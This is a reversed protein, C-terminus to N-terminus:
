IGGEISLDLSETEENYESDMFISNLISNIEDEDETTPSQPSAGGEPFLKFIKAGDDDYGVITQPSTDPNLVIEYWYDKAKSIVEGIKTDAETLFIEVKDTETTVIFDKELVVNEYAKKEVVCMRVVDGVKFTYPTGNNNAKVYFLLIDGRTVYISNDENVVFM